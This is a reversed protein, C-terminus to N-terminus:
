IDQFHILNVISKAELDLDILTSNGM